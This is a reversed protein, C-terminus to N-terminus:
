NLQDVGDPLRPNGEVFRIAPQAVRRDASARLSGNRLSNLARDRARRIPRPMATGAAEAPEVRDVALTTIMTPGTAPEVPEYLLSASLAAAAARRYLELTM